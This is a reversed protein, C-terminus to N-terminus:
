FLPLDHDSIDALRPRIGPPSEDIHTPPSNCVHAVLVPYRRPASIRFDDRYDLELGTTLEYSARGDLLAVAEGWGDVPVPDVRAPMACRDADLGTLIEAGCERCRGPRAKRRVGDADLRGAVELARRLWAPMSDKTRIM